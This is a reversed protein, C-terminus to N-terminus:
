PRWGASGLLEAAVRGIIGRECEPKALEAYVEDAFCGPYGRQRLEKAIAAARGLDIKIPQGYDFEEGTM